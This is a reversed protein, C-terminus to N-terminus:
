PELVGRAVERADELRDVDVFVRTGWDAASFLRVFRGSQKVYWTIGATELRQVIREANEETFQGLEVTRM